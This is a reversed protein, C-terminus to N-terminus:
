CVIPSQLINSVSAFDSCDFLNWKNLRNANGRSIKIDPKAATVINWNSTVKALAVKMMVKMARNKSMNKSQFRKMRTIAIKFCQQAQILM